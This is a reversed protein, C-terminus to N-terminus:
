QPPAAFPDVEDSGAPAPEPAKPNLVHHKEFLELYDKEKEFYPLKMDKVFKMLAPLNAEDITLKPIPHYDECEFCIDIWAVPTWQADYFVFAHHPDYCDVDGYPYDVQTNLLKLLRKTQGDNLRRTYPAIIGAHHTGDKFIISVGRPDKTYDYCYAVVHTFPKPPWSDKAQLATLTLLLLLTKM